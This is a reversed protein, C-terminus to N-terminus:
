TQEEAEGDLLNDYDVMSTAMRENSVIPDSLIRDIWTNQEPSQVQRTNTGSRNSM